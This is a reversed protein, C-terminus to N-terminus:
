AAEKGDPDPAHSRKRSFLHRGIGLAVWAVNFMILLLSFWAFAFSLWVLLQSYGQGILPWLALSARYATLMAYGLPSTSLDGNDVSFAVGAYHWTIPQLPPAWLNATPPQGPTVWQAVTGRPPSAAALVPLLRQNELVMYRHPLPWEPSGLVYPASLYTAPLLTTLQQTAGQALYFAHPCLGVSCGVMMAEIQRKRSADALEVVPRAGLAVAHAVAQRQQRSTADLAPLSWLLGPRTAQVTPHNLVTLTDLTLLPWSVAPAAFYDPIRSASEVAPNAPVPAACTYAEEYLSKVFSPAPATAEFLMACLLLAMM